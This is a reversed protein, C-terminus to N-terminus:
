AKQFINGFVRGWTANAYLDPAYSCKSNEEFYLIVFNITCGIVM